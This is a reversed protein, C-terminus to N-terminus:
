HGWETEADSYTFTGWHLAKFETFVEHKSENGVLKSVRADPVM